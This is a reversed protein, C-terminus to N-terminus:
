ISQTESYLEKLSKKSDFTIPRIPLNQIFRISRKAAVPTGADEKLFADIDRQAAITVIPKSRYMVQITEGHKLRKLFGKLDNRIEKTSITVTKM